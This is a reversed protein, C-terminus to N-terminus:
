CDANRHADDHGHGAADVRRHGSREERLLTVLHDAERHLQIVLAPSLDAEPGAARDVVQVVGPAHGGADADRVVDDVELALEGVLHDRVEYPLIGASPRWDGAHVAVAVELERREGLACPPEIGTKDGGSVVGADLAVLGARGGSQVPQKATEVRGLVLRVKEEREILRLEGVGHERDARHVLRGHAIM